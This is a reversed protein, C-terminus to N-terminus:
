CYFLYLNIRNWRGIRRFIAFGTQNTYGLHVKLYADSLGNCNAQRLGSQNALFPAELWIHPDRRRAYELLILNVRIAVVFDRESSKILLGPKWLSRWWRGSIILSILLSYSSESTFPKLSSIFKPLDFNVPLWTVPLYNLLRSNLSSVKLVSSALSNWCTKKNQKKSPSFNKSDTEQRM